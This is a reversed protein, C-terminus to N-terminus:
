RLLTVATQTVMHMITVSPLHLLVPVAALLAFLKERGFLRQKHVLSFHVEVEAAAHHGSAVDAVRLKGREFGEANMCVFIVQLQQFFFSIPQKAFLTEQKPWHLFHNLM